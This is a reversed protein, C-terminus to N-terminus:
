EIIKYVLMTKDDTTLFLDTEVDYSNVKLNEDKYVVQGNLSIISLGTKPHSIVFSNITKNFYMNSKLLLKDTLQIEKELEIGDTSIKHIHIECTSDATANEEDDIAPNYAIAITADDIWCTARNEHEWVGVTSYTIRNNNIFQAIDYIKYCDRSGWAWGASLFTKQNPSLFLKGFFYDYPRPWPLKNDDPYQKYFELHREEANEEILSKSATLIQRTDLNMIQLHNWDAGYIIHPVNTENKFLAIPYRSINAHYEGRWLDLAKYKGPYHIIGHRKFDNVVVVIEDLTYITSKATLDFGGDSSEFSSKVSFLYTGKQEDLNFRGVNGSSLLMVIENPKSMTATVITEEMNFVVEHLKEINM